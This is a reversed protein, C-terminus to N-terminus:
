LEVGGQRGSFGRVTVVKGERGLSAPDPGYVTHDPHLNLSITHSM